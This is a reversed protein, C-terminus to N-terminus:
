LSIRYVKRPRGRPNPSEEGVVQAIGKSELEILIRRASRPLIQMHSALEHANIEQKGRKKLISELKSLTMVSLSTLQSLEQLKESDYRYAIQEERGLPGLVSKDDLFVMWNGAGREKAHLLATGGHIEAEYATKGIGIGCTVLDPRIGFLEELDPITAYDSTVEQVKGRTTFIVYRGPGATKLSGQLYKAYRLLKEMTKIEANQWEDTSFNGGALERFPDIEMMQVAIQTDKFHLMEHTRLLMHIVSLVGAKTPVVRHVPVGRRLLEQEATRLCTVAAKTKGEQWLKEHFDALESALIAGEYHKLWRFGEAIGAEQLFHGLEEATFTDFSVEDVRIGLQHSLHLLTRYLSAGIHPVYATPVQIKGTQSAMAHPVQGSFLWMDVEDLHPLLLDPIDEERWYVIPLCEIEPFEQVASEIIALSDDAGIVGLRLRM